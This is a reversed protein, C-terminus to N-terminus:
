EAAHWEQGEAAPDVLGMLELNFLCHKQVPETEDPAQQNTADAGQAEAPHAGHFLKKFPNEM